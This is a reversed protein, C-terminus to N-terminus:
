QLSLTEQQVAQELQEDTMNEFDTAEDFASPLDVETKEQEQLVQALVQSNKKASQLEFNLLSELDDTNALAAAIPPTGRGQSFRWFNTPQLWKSSLVSVDPDRKLFYSKGPDFVPMGRCSRSVVTGIWRGTGSYIKGQSQYANRGYHRKLADETTDGIEDPEYVLVKGSDEVLGDDVMLVLEGGCIYTRVVTKLLQNLGMGHFYECSRTWDQFLEMLRDNAFNLILRGGVTGVANFDYQRLLTNFTASNRIQNRAMDLLKGRATRDLYHDEGHREVQAQERNMDDPPTVVRYRPGFAKKVWNLQRLRAVNDERGASKKKLFGFM